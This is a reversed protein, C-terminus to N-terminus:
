FAQVTNKLIEAIAVAGLILVGGIVAYTFTRTAEEIQGPNGQATVYKFGSLIIFFVIVPIMLVIFINLIAVLLAELSNIGPLLPNKLEVKTVPKTGAGDSEASNGSGDSATVGGSGDSENSASATQVSAVVNFIFGFLVPVCCLLFLSKQLTIM